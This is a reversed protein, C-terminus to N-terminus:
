ISSIWKFIYRLVEIFNVTPFAVAKLVLSSHIQPKDVRINKFNSEENAWKNLLDENLMQWANFEKIYM